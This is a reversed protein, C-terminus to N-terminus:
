EGGSVHFGLQELEVFEGAAGEDLAHGFGGEAEAHQREQGALSKMSGVFFGGHGRSGATRSEAFGFGDDHDLEGATETVNVAEIGLGARGFAGAVGDFRAGVIM